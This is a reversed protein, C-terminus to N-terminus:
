EPSGGLSDHLASRNEFRFRLEAAAPKSLQAHLSSRTRAEIVFRRAGRPQAFLDRARRAEVVLGGAGGVDRLLQRALDLELEALLALVERSEHQRDHELGLTWSRQDPESRPRTDAARDSM